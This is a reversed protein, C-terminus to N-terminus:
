ASFLHVNIIAGFEGERFPWSDLLDLPHLRILTSLVALPGLTLQRSIEELRKLDRDVCVVECGLQALVFANRGAGSAADLVPLEKAAAAILPAFQRVLSSPQPLRTM